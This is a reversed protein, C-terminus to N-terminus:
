LENISLAEGTLRIRASQGWRAQSRLEDAVWYRGAVSVLQAELSQCFIQAETNGQVGALARGRLPAYCHIHGDAMVEAGASVPALLVLDGPAYIQQGGRVPQTIVQTAAAIAPAPAESKAQIPVLNGQDDFATEGRDRRLSSLVPLGLEPLLAQQEKSARIAVLSVGSSQCVAVLGSWDVASETLKEVSLIVPSSKLWSAADLSRGQLQARLEEIRATQLEMVTATFAGGKLQFAPEATSARAVSSM